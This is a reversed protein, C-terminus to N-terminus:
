GDPAASNGFGYRFHFIGCVFEVIEARKEVGTVTGIEFERVRIEAFEGSGFPQRKGAAVLYAM